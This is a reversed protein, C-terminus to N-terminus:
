SAALTSPALEQSFNQFIVKGEMAGMRRIPMTYVM